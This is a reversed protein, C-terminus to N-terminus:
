ELRKLSDMIRAHAMKGWESKAYDSLVAWAGVQLDKIPGHQGKYSDYVRKNGDIVEFIKPDLQDFRARLLYNAAKAPDNYLTAVADAIQVAERHYETNGDFGSQIFETRYMRQYALLSERLGGGFEDPPVFYPSAHEIGYATAEDMLKSKIGSTQDENHRAMLHGLEHMVTSLEAVYQADKIFIFGLNEFALGGIGPRLPDNEITVHEPVKQGTMKEFLQKGFELPSGYTREFSKDNITGSRGTERAASQLADLTGSSEFFLTLVDELGEQLANQTKRM